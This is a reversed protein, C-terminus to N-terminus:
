GHPKHTGGVIAFAPLVLTALLLLAGINEAIWRAQYFGPVLNMWEAM